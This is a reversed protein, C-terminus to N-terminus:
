PTPLDTLFTSRILETSLRIKPLFFVRCKLVGSYGQAWLQGSSTEELGKM